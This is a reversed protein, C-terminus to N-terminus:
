VLCTIHRSRYHKKGASVDDEKGGGSGGSVVDGDGAAGDDDGPFGNFDGCLFVTSAHGGGGKKQAREGVRQRLHVM